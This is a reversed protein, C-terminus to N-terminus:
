RIKIIIGHGNLNHLVIRDAMGKQDNVLKTVGACNYFGYDDFMVMGAVSLRPWVWELTDKASEYVDVDIHCFAFKKDAISHATDEPFVGKLIRTNRAGLKHALELVVNTSTDAHEGGKYGSDNVGAKVVGSFTDCLYVTKDPSRAAMLCGTGGRWVGVELIDGPVQARQLLVDWLEYCRYVDVLTNHQIISYTKQFEKDSLWPAYTAYPMINSYQTDGHAHFSVRFIDYGIRRLLIRVLYFFSKM